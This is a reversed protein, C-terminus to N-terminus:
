IFKQNLAWYEEKLTRKSTRGKIQYASNQFSEHQDLLFYDTLLEPEVVMAKTEELLILCLKMDGVNEESLAILHKLHSQSVGRVVGEKRLRKSAEIAMKKSLFLPIVNGEMRIYNGNVGQEYGSDKEMITWFPEGMVSEDPLLEFLSEITKEIWEDRNKM